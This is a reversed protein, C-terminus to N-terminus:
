SAGTAGAARGSLGTVPVLPVLYALHYWVPYDAWVRVLHVPASFALLILGGCWAARSGAIKAAVPGAAVSCALAVTLRGCLMAVTYAKTPEAVAYAPWLLRLALLGASGTVVWTTLGVVIGAAGRGRMTM